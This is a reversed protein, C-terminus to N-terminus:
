FALKVIGTCGHPRPKFEVVMVVLAIEECIWKVSLWVSKHEVTIQTVVPVKNMWVNINILKLIRIIDSLLSFEHLM